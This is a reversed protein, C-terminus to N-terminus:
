HGNGGNGKVPTTKPNVLVQSQRVKLAQLLEEAATKLITEPDNSARLKTTIDAIQRERAARRQTEELLRANELALSFQAVITNITDIEEATWSLHDGERQLIVSGLQFGRFVIPISISNPDQQNDRLDEDVSLVTQAGVRNYSYAIKQKGLRKQWAQGVQVEYLNKIEQLANQMELILRSNEIALAVQDALVQLTVTDEESFAGPKTSQVDLIGITQGRSTLPLAMESRTQPLDPNNFYIADTGVDLAIRPTGTAAVYGVIGVKGVELKHGRNIMRQGGESSAARLVAYKRSEDILFIGAHYFNFKQSILGVTNVLLSELDQIASAESAVEATVQLQVARKELDRTRDAVRRELNAILERLQATMSNFTRALVGIEDDSEIPAVQTLDGNTIATVTATLASIPHLGQRITLWSLMFLLTSALGLAIWSIRQFLILNAMLVREPLQVVISWGNPLVSLYARWSVGGKDKYDHLVGPYDGINEPKNQDIAHKPASLALSNDEAKLLSAYTPDSRAVIQNNDNLVYAIGSRGIQTNQVLKDVVQLSAAFMVLGLADGDPDLIQAYGILEPMGTSPNTWTQFNNGKGAKAAQFWPHQSFDDIPKGSSMAINKGDLDSTIVRYMYPYTDVMAKLIPEQREPDMSIIGPQRALEQMALRNANLWQDLRTTIVQNSAHLEALSYQEILKGARTTIFITITVMVPVTAILILATLRVQLSGRQIRRESIMQSFNAFIFAIAYITTTALLSLAPNLYKAVYLQVFGALLITFLLIWSLTRNSKSSKHNFLASYLLIGVTIINIVIYSADQIQSFQRGQTLMGLSQYGGWGSGPAIRTYWFETGLWIDSMTLLLPAIALVYVPLWIWRWRNQLWGRWLLAVTCLLTLPVIASTTVALLIAPARVSTYNIANVLSGIAFSNLALVLLLACTHRNATHWTNSVLIYMGLILEILAIVWALYSIIQLPPSSIM